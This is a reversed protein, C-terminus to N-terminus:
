APPIQFLSRANDSTKQAVWELNQNLEQALREAITHVHLPHNRQGRIIQPPLFPADTELICNDLKNERLLQRLGDNKPYTAPGGIGTMFGMAHIDKALSFNESFCHIVGHLKQNRYEDLVRLTEELAKRSHVVLPLNTEIALEIHAKFSDIQRQKNYGPHHMDLGTEGIGVIKQPNEAKKVLQEIHKFDDYWSKTCDCPHIGLTAYVNPLSHVITSNYISSNKDIAITIVQKVDHKAAEHTIQTIKEIDTTTPLTSTDAQIIMDLHCHTDILM